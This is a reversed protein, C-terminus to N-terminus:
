FILYDALSLYNAAIRILFLAILAISLIDFFARKNGSFNAESNIALGIVVGSWVIGFFVFIIMTNIAFLNVFNGLLIFASFPIIGASVIGVIKKINLNKKLVLAVIYIIGTIVAIVIATALINACFTWLYNIDNLAGWDIIRRYGGYSSYGNSIVTSFMTSFLSLLSAELIAVAAFFITFTKSEFKSIKKKLGVVPSRFADTIIGQSEKLNKSFESNKTEESM